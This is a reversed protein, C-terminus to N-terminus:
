LRFRPSSPLLTLFPSLSAQEDEEEEEEKGGREDIVGWGGLQFIQKPVVFQSKKLTLKVCICNEVEEKGRM